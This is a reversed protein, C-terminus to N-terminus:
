HNCKHCMWGKGARSMYRREYGRGCMCCKTKTSQCNEKRWAMFERHLVIKMFAEYETYMESKLEIFVSAVDYRHIALYSEIFHNVAVLRARM